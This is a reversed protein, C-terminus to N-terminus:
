ACQGLARTVTARLVILQWQGPQESQSHVTCRLMGFLREGLEEDVGAAVPISRGPAQPASPRAPETLFARFHPFPTLMSKQFHPFSPFPALRERLECCVLM